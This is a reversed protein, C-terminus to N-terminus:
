SSSSFAFFSGSLCLFTLISFIIGAVKSPSIPLRIKMPDKPDYSIELQKNLRYDQSSKIKIVNEYTKNNIKYTVDIVCIYKIVDYSSTRTKVKTKEVDCTVKKVNSTIKIYDDKKTLFVISLILFVISIVILFILVGISKKNEPIKLSNKSFKSM